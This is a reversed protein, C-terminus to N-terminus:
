RRKAKGTPPSESFQIARLRHVPKDSGLQCSDSSVPNLTRIFQNSATRDLLLPSPEARFVHAETNKLAAAADAFPVYVTFNALPLKVMQIEANPIFKIMESGKCPYFLSTPDHLMRKLQSRKYCVANGGMPHDADPPGALIIHDVPDTDIYDAGDENAYM